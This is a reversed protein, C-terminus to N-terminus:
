RAGEWNSAPNMEVAWEIASMSDVTAAAARTIRVSQNGNQAIFRRTFIPAIPDAEITWPRPPGPKSTPRGAEFGGPRMGHM